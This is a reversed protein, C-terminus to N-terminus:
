VLEPHQVTKVLVGVDDLLLLSQTVDLHCAPCRYETKSHLYVKTPYTGNECTSCHSEAEQQRVFEAAETLTSM